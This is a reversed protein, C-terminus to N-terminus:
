ISCNCNNILLEGNSLEFCKRVPTNEEVKMCFPGYVYNWYLKQTGNQWEPRFVRHDRIINKHQERYTDMSKFDVDRLDITKQKKIRPIKQISTDSFSGDHEEHTAERINHFDVFGPMAFKHSNEQTTRATQNELEHKRDSLNKPCVADESEARLLKFSKSIGINIVKTDSDDETSNRSNLVQIEANHSNVLIHRSFELSNNSM